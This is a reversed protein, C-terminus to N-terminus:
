QSSFIMKKGFGFKKWAKRESTNVGHTRPVKTVGTVGTKILKKGSIEFPKIIRYYFIVIIIKRACITNIATPNPTWDLRRSLPIISNETFLGGGGEGGGGGLTGEDRHAQVFWQM